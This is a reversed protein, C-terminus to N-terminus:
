FGTLWYLMIRIKSFKVPSMCFHGGTIKYLIRYYEDKQEIVQDRYHSSKYWLGEFIARSRQLGRIQKKYERIRKDM